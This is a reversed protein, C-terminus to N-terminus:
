HALQLLLDAWFHYSHSVFAESNILREILQERKNPYQDKQFAEAEEITPVRGAINLYARRLFVEDNIDGNPEIGQKKLAAEVLQDIKQSPNLSEGKLPLLPIFALLTTIWIQNM